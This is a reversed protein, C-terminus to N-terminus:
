TPLQVVYTAEIGAMERPLPVRILYRGPVTKEAVVEPNSPDPRYPIPSLMSDPPPM